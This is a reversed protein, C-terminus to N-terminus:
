VGGRVQEQMDSISQKLSGVDETEYPLREVKLKAEEAQKAAEQIESELAQLKGETEKQGALV